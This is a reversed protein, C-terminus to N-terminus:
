AEEEEKRRKVGIAALFNQPCSDRDMIFAVTAEVSRNLPKLWAMSELESNADDLFHTFKEVVFGLTVSQGEEEKELACEQSPNKALYKALKEDEVRLNVRVVEGVSVNSMDKVKWSAAEIIKGSLNTVQVTGM